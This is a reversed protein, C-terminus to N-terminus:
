KWADATERPIKEIKMRYMQLMIAEHVHMDNFFVPEYFYSNEKLFPKM